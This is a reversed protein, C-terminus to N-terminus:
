TVAQDEPLPIYPYTRSSAPQPYTFHCARTFATIFMRTGYFAPIIKFLQFGTLKELVRTQPTFLPFVEGLVAPPTASKFWTKQSTLKLVLVMIGVRKISPSSVHKATKPIDTNVTPKYRCNSFVSHRNVTQLSSFICESVM